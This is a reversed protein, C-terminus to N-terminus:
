KILQLIEKASFSGWVTLRKVPVKGEATNNIATNSVECVLKYGMDNAAKEWEESYSGYPYALVDCPTGLNTEILYKSLRLETHGEAESLMNMDRHTNTHSYIRVLGSQQM